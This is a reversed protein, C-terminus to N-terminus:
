NSSVKSEEKEHNLLKEELASVPTESPAESVITVVGASAATAIPGKVKEPVLLNVDEDKKKNLQYDPSDGSM